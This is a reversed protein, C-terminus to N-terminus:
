RPPRPHARGVVSGLHTAAIEPSAIEPSAIGPSIVDPAVPGAGPAPRPRPEGMPIPGGGAAAKGQWRRRQLSLYGIAGALLTAVGGVALSWRPGASAGVWGVVPGGIPTSGMFAMSWLSMVRGRMSPEAALQLTANGLSLFTVSCAGVFALVIKETLPTPAVAALLIVVGFLLATNVLRRQGGQKRGAAVLGGVVAGVGMFATLAGYTESNGHFTYKAILPLTVQFEYALCGVLATMLLVDRLVPTRAVYRFGATLQGKTRPSLPAPAMEAPRMAKLAGLVFVFSAGNLIFCWGIGVGIILAGAIAPGIARALNAMVSNLTVANRLHDRGVMEGVFTQRTPNDVMNILGLTVALAFIMWLRVEGSLVLAGLTLAQVGALAQTWFLIRYKGFRDAITGGLPGLVLIPLTQLAVVLGLDVGSGTLKLVLWAQAVSQMWTGTLSTAQGAFYYRFNRVRLSSFTSTAATTFATL